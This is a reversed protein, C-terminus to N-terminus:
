TRMETDRDRMFYMCGPGDCYYLPNVLDHFLDFVMQTPYVMVMVMVMWWMWVLKDYSDVTDSLGSHNSRSM